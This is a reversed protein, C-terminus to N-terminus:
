KTKISCLIKKLSANIGLNWNKPYHNKKMFIKIIAVAAGSLNKSIVNSSFNIKGLAIIEKKLSVLVVIEGKETIKEIAIIGNMMLNSGYCLSNIVSNKVIIRKYFKLVFQNPLLLNRFKFVNEWFKLNWSLDLIDQFLIQNDTENFIGNKLQRIENVSFKSMSIVNINTKLVNPLIPKESLFYCLFKNKKFSLNDILFKKVNTFKMVHKGSSISSYYFLNKIYKSLQKTELKSYKKSKIVCMIEDTHEPNFSLDNYFKEFFLIVCGSIYKDVYFRSFIEKIGIVNKIKRIIELSSVNLPKDLNLFGAKFTDCHISRSTENLYCTFNRM